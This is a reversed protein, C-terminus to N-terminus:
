WPREPVRINLAAPVVSAETELVGPQEGDLDLLVRETSTVRVARARRHVVKPHALHTGRYLRPLNAIAELKGFDRCLVVDLLGDAPDALPAIQMGGGFYRGNAMALVTVSADFPEEGDISISVEHNRYRLLSVVAGWLFSCFGGSAKSTHNVRDVTDGGLGVDCVNVFYRTHVEGDHGVYRVKGADITAVGGGMLCAAARELDKPIGVARSFDCGTGRPLVGLVACPNVPGDDDLFGNAVENLTGDGGVSIIYEYGGLLAERALRTADGPGGTMEWEFFLGAGHLREAIRPWLKGTSGNASAPNVIVLTTNGM